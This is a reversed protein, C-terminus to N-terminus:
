RWALTKKLEQEVRKKWLAQEKIHTGHGTEKDYREQMNEGDKLISNRIGEIKYQYNDKTFKQNHLAKRLKRATLEAIDFHLQEHDLLSANLLDPKDKRAWSKNCNFACTVYFEPIVNSGRFQISYKLSIITSTYALFSSKYDVEGRFDVWHLKIDPRWYITDPLESKNKYFVSTAESSYFSKGLFISSSSLIIFFTLKFM